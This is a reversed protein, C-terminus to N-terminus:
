ILIIKMLICGRKNLDNIIDDVIDTTLHFKPCLLVNRYESEIEKNLVPIIKGNFAFEIITGPISNYKLVASVLVNTDIVVFYKM